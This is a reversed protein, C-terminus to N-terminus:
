YRWGPEVQRGALASSLEISLHEFQEPSLQRIPNGKLRMPVFSFDVDGSDTSVRLLVSTMERTGLISRGNGVVSVLEGPILGYEGSPGAAVHVGNADFALAGYSTPRMRLKDDGLIQALRESTRALEIGVTIPVGIATPFTKAIGRMRTSISLAFGGVALGVIVVTFILSTAAVGTADELSAIRAIALVLAIAAVALSIWFVPPQGASKPPQTM